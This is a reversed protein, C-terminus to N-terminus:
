PVKSNITIQVTGTSQTDVPTVMGQLDGSQPM